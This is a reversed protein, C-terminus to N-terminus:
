QEEDGIQWILGPTFISTLSTIECSCMEKKQDIVLVCAKRYRVTWIM